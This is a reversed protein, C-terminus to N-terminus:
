FSILYIIGCFIVISVLYAFTFIVIMKRSMLPRNDPCKRLIYENRLDNIAMLLIISVVLWGVWGQIFVCSLVFAALIFIGMLVLGFWRKVSFGIAKVVGGGDMPMLPVLNFLNLFVSWFAIDAFLRIDTLIYVGTAIVGLILGWIPGMFYIFAEATHSTNQEFDTKSDTQSMTVAGLFPIFFIGKVSIGCKKFAWAHGQEHVYILVILMIGLKGSTLLDFPFCIKFFFAFSIMSLVALTIKLIVPHRDNCKALFIKTESWFKKVLSMVKKGFKDLYMLVYLSVLLIKSIVPQRNSRRALCMQIKFQFYQILSISRRKKM